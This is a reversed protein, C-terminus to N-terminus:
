QPLIDIGYLRRLGLFLCFHEQRVNIIAVSTEWGCVWLDCLLIDFLEFLLQRHKGFAEVHM